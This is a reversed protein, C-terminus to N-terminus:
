RVNMLGRSIDRAKPRLETERAPYKVPKLVYPQPRNTGIATGVATPSMSNLIPAKLM